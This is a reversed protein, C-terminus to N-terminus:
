SKFLKDKNPNQLQNFKFDILFTYDHNIREIQMLKAGNVEKVEGKNM